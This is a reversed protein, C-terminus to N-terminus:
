ATFSKRVKKSASKGLDSAVGALFGSNAYAQSADWMMVGGFSSFTKCYNIVDSLSSASEYGSGAGTPGGPVGLLIKVNPNASM